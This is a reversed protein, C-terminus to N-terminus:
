GLSERSAPQSAQICQEADNTAFSHKQPRTLTNPSRGERCFLQSQDTSRRKWRRFTDSALNQPVAPAQKADSALRRMSQLTLRPKRHSRISNVAPWGTELLRRDRWSWHTRLHHDYGEGPQRDAPQAQTSLNLDQRKAENLILSSRNRPPKAEVEWTERHGNILTSRHSGGERTPATEVARESSRAIQERYRARPKRPTQRTAKLQHLARTEPMSVRSSVLLRNGKEDAPSPEHNIRM